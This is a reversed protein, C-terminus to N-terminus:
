HTSAHVLWGSGSSGSGLRLPTPYYTSVASLVGAWFFYIIVTIIRAVCGLVWGKHFFFLSAPQRDCRSRHSSRAFGLRVLQLAGHSADWGAPNGRKDGYWAISYNPTNKTSPATGPTKTRGQKMVQIHKFKPELDPRRPMM